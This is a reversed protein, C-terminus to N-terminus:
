AILFDDQEFTIADIRLPERGDDNGILTITDGKEIVVDQVTYSTYSAANALDEDQEDDWTWSDVEQGNIAITLESDGDAEDFYDIIIDFVGSDGEFAYSAEHSDARGDRAIGAGNAAAKLDVQKFGDLDLDEAEVAIVQLEQEPAPQPAPQPQAPGTAPTFALSDIRLPERGDAEGVLSVTDGPELSLGEVVRTAFSQTNALHTGLDADWDWEAVLEGNVMVALNSVGDTEDYYNIALDYTGAEGEFVMSAENEERTSGRLITEGSAANLRAISFGADTDMDEAEVLIPTLAPAPVTTAAATSAEPALAPGNNGVEPLVPAFGTILGNIYDEINAVGNGDADGQADAQQANSGLIAEYADPIGDGDSDPLAEAGNHRLYGGVEDQSDILSGTGNIVSDIIREDIANRDLAQAGARALVADLVDDTDLYDTTVPDFAYADSLRSRDTDDSLAGENGSIYVDGRGDVFRLPGRSSSDEGALYLNNIVNATVNGGLHLGSNGYNYIVNNIFEVNQVDDNITPNRFMNHALLNGVISINSTSLSILMAMSHEGEPHISDRLSESVINNSITINSNDGWSSIGEDIGWSISNSDIVVHSVPDGNRGNGISIGDRSHPTFGDESDGPRINLGRIIVNDEVVKLRGGTITVGGPATQGAITVDGNIKIQDTLDIQGGVEFVVIRPGDMEELAWRLSGEGDDNLNTVKIVEGGRGGTTYAGFGQAGEFALLDENEPAM